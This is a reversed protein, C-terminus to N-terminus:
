ADRRWAANPASGQSRLIAMGIMSQSELNKMVVKLAEYRAEADSLREYLDDQEIARMLANAKRSAADTGVAFKAHCIALRKDWDRLARARDDAAQEYENQREAMDAQIEELRRLVLGPDSLATV